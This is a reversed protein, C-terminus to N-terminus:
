RPVHRRDAPFIAFTLAGGLPAINMVKSLNTVDLHGFSPGRNPPSIEHRPLAAHFRPPNARGANRRAQYERFQARRWAAMPFFIEMGIFRRSFKISADSEEFELAREGEPGEGPSRGSSLPIGWTVRTLIRWRTM